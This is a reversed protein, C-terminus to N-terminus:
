RFASPRTAIGPPVSKDVAMLDSKVDMNNVAIETMLDSPVGQYRGLAERTARLMLGEQDLPVLQGQELCVAFTKLKMLLSRGDPLLLLHLHRRTSHWAYQVRPSPAREKSGATPAEKNGKPALYFWEGVSRNKAWDLVENSVGTNAPEDIVVLGQLELGTMMELHEPSLAIDNVADASILNELGKLRASIQEVKAMSLGETNMLFANQISHIIQMQIAEQAIETVGITSLGTRLRARLGPLAQAVRRRQEAGTTSGIAWVLLAATQKHKQTEPSQAGSRVASVALVEAWTKFLFSRIEEQIPLDQLMTRLEITFKVLLTEKEEVQQAVTMAKGAQRNEAMFKQLFKEFEILTMQFVKIGTEPYQEITQVIRSLEMELASGQFNAGEFGMAASGMRDILRRVPHAKDNFFTTDTLAIRLVPVQLRAFLIRLSAPVRGEAIVSQFMLAVMEIVAKESPRDAENKLAESQQKALQAVEESVLNPAKSLASNRAAQDLKEAYVQQAGMAQVLGMSPALQTVPKSNGYSAGMVVSLRQRIDSWLAHMQQISPQGFQAAPAPLPVIAPMVATTGPIVMQPALLHPAVSQSGALDGSANPIYSGPEMGAGSPMARSVVGSAIGATTDTAMPQPMYAAAGYSAGFHAAPAPAPTSRVFPQIGKDKLLTDSAEYAKLMLAAWEKAIGNMAWTFANKELQAAAWADMLSEAVIIPQMPDKNPLGLANLSLLRKCLQSFAPEIVEQVGTNVRSSAIMGEIADNSILSLQEITTAEELSPPKKSVLHDALATRWITLLNQAWSRRHQMYDQLWETVTRADFAADKFSSDTATEFRRVILRDLDPISTCLSQLFCQRASRILVEPENDNSTSHHDM